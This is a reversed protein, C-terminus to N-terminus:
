DEPVDRAPAEALRSDTWVHDGYVSMDILSRKGQANKEHYLKDWIDRTLIIDDYMAKEAADPDGKLIAALTKGHSVNIPKSFDQSTEANKINIEHMLNVLVSAFFRSLPNAICEVIHHHFATELPRLAGRSVQGLLATAEAHLRALEEKKEQPMFCAAVRAAHPEILLRAESLHEHTLELDQSHLFDMLSKQPRLFPVESVFTGGGSGKRLSILGLTELACLAERLTQRSVGFSESLEKESALKDGPRLRNERISNRIYDEIIKSTKPRSVQEYM